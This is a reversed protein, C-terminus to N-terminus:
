VRWSFLLCQLDCSASIFEECLERITCERDCVSCIRSKQLRSGSLCGGRSGNRRVSRRVRRGIEGIAVGRNIREIVEQTIVRSCVSCSWSRIGVDQKTKQMTILAEVLIVGCHFSSGMQYKKDGVDFTDQSNGGESKNLIM